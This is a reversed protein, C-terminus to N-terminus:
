RVWIMIADHEVQLRNHKLFGHFSSFWKGKNSYHSKLQVANKKNETHCGGSWSSGLFLGGEYNSRRGEQGIPVWCVIGGHFSTIYPQSHRLVEFKYDRDKQLKLFSESFFRFPKKFHAVGDNAPETKGLDRNRGKYFSFRISHQGVQFLQDLLLLPLHVGSDAGLGVFTPHVVSRAHIKHFLNAYAPSAKSGTCVAGMKDSCIWSFDDTVRAALTWGGGNTTMDCYVHHLRSVQNNGTATFQIWYYGDGRSDEKQIVDWCSTAPNAASGRRPRTVCPKAELTTLFCSCLVLVIFAFTQM